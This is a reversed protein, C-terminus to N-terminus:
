AKEPWLTTPGVPMADEIAFGAQQVGHRGVLAATVHDFRDGEFLGGVGVQRVFELGARGADGAADAQAGREIVDRADAQVLDRGVLM